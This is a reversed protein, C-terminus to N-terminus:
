NQGALLAAARLAGDSAGWVLVQNVLSYGKRLAEVAWILDVLGTAAGSDGICDAPHWLDGSTAADPKEHVSGFARTYALGWELARYRDGNLDCVFLPLHSFTAANRMARLVATLGQAQNPNETGATPEQGTATAALSAMAKNRVPQKELICFAAAEGPLVGRENAPGRLIGASELKDYVAPRVLSDVGGVIAGAIKGDAIAASARSLAALGAARGEAVVDVLAPRFGGLAVTIAAVLRQGTGPEEGTGIGLFLGWNAPPVSSGLACQVSEVAAPVVLRVLRDAGNEILLFEPLPLPVEFREHGPWKEDKPGGDFWELPVRGGRRPPVAGEPGQEPGVQLSTMRSISARFAAASAAASLGVPTVAGIGTIALANM